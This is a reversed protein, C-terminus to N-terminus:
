NFKKTAEIQLDDLQRQMNKINDLLYTGQENMYRKMAMEKLEEFSHRVDAWKGLLYYTENIPYPKEKTWGNEAMHTLAEEKSNFSTQLRGENNTSYYTQYNVGICCPDPNKDDYWIQIKEFYGERVSLAILDLIEVPIPTINYEKVGVIRPCLTKFVEAMSQKLHMFPIPSKNPKVIQTQGQLGLQDVLENWKNLQENDYILSQTEEIIFTEVITKMENSNNMFEM